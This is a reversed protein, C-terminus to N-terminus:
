SGCFSKWTVLATSSLLLRGLIAFLMSLAWDKQESELENISM